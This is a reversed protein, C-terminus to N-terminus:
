VQTGCIVIMHHITGSIDLAVSMIKIITMKSKKKGKIGTVVRFDFNQIFIFFVGLSM